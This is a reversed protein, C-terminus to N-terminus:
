LHRQLTYVGRHVFYTPSESMETSFLTEFKDMAAIIEFTDWEYIKADEEPYKTKRQGNDDVVTFHRQYISYIEARLERTATKSIGLPLIEGKLLRDLARLSSSIPSYMDRALQEDLHARGRLARLMKGLEYLPYTNVREVDPAEWGCELVPIAHWIRGRSIAMM